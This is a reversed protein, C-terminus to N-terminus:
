YSCHPNLVGCYGAAVGRVGTGEKRAMWPLPLWRNIAHRLSRARYCTVTIVTFYSPAGRRSHLGWGGPQKTTAGDRNCLWVGLSLVPSRYSTHTYACVHTYVTHARTCWDHMSSGSFYRRTSLTNESFGWRDHSRSSRSIPRSHQLYHARAPTLKSPASIVDRLIDSPLTDPTSLTFIQLQNINRDETHPLHHSLPYHRTQYTSKPHTFNINWLIIPKWLLSNNIVYEHKDRHFILYIYKPINPLSSMVYNYISM